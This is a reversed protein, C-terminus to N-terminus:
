ATVAELSKVVRAPNGAVVSYPPVDRTVVACAAVISGEGIRVGKLVVANFGIWVNSEIAIPKSESNKWDWLEGYFGSELMRLRAQPDTPHSNHDYIHVHNSIICHDGIQIEAAPAKKERVSYSM